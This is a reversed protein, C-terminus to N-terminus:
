LSEDSLLGKREERGGVRNDDQIGGNVNFYKEARSPWFLIGFCLLAIAHASYSMTRVVKSRYWPDLLYAALVILPLSLFWLSYLGAVIKYLLKREKMTELRYTELLSRLFWMFMILRLLIVLIGPFSEYIYYRYAPDWDVAAWAYLLCTAIIM